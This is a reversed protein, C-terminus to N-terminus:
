EVRMDLKNRFLNKIQLRTFNAMVIKNCLEIFDVGDDKRNILGFQASFAVYLKKGFLYVPFTEIPRSFLIKYM